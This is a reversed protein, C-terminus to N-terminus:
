SDCNRNLKRVFRVYWDGNRSGSYREESYCKTTSIRMGNNYWDTYALICRDISELDYASSSRGLGHMLFIKLGKQANSLKGMNQPHDISAWIHRWTLYQDCYKRMTSNKRNFQSGNDTLLSDYKKHDHLLSKMGDIVNDDTENELRTAWLRRSYDDEM